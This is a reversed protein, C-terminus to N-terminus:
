LWGNRRFGRHIFLCATVGLVLPYGCTWGLEPTHDFNMGYVGCVLTPVSSRPGPQSRVEENQAVTVQALHAQRISDLLTTRSRNVEALVAYSTLDNLM